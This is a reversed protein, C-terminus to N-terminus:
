CIYIFYVLIMCHVFVVRRIFFRPGYLKVDDVVKVCLCARMADIRRQGDAM